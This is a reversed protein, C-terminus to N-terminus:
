RRFYDIALHLMALVAGGAGLLGKMRQVSREHQAVRDELQNLRGPQGVGMLQKMQSKLVSLDALVNGEFETM